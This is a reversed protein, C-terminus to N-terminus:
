RRAAFGLHAFANNEEMLPVAPRFTRILAVPWSRVYLRGPQGALEARGLSRRLAARAEVQRTGLRLTGPGMELLREDLRVRPRAIEWGSRSGTPASSRNQRIGCGPRNANCTDIGAYINCTITAEYSVSRQKAWLPYSRRYRAIDM